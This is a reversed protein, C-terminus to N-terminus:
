GAEDDVGDDFWAEYRSSTVAEGAAKKANCAACLLQINTCDNLGGAALPVIHDYNEESWLSVLGSLDCDCLVCRGRDRYFVARRAWEPVSVRRLVGPREFYRTAEPEESATEDRVARAMMDNFLLLLSRNQFLVFFVERTAKGLLQEFEGGLRLEDYYDHVDNEDADQFARGDRSASLWREFTEHEVGFREMALEIPLRAPHPELAGPIDKFREIDAKREDLDVLEVEESLQDALVFEIFAHFASFRRFPAVYHLISGDGYFDHLRRIYEFQDELVNKVVHAFYYTEYFTLDISPCSARM